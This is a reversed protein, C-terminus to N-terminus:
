AYAIRARAHTSAEALATEARQILYQYDPHRDFEAIGIAVTSQVPTWSGQLNGSQLANRLEESIANALQTARSRDCEVAVMLFRNEDFRFLHDSTRACDVLTNVAVQLLRSRSGTAPLGQFGPLQVEILLLSCPRGSRQHTQMVNALIAPLYRRDPLQTEVDVGDDQSGVRDFLENLKFRILDLLQKIASVAADIKQRDKTTAEVLRPLLVQDMTEVSELLSHLEDSPGFLIAGKNHLWIGFESERLCGPSQPSHPSWFRMLLDEAWESLAARQRAKEFSASRKQAILRYAEDNRVVNQADHFYAQNMLGDALHLLDSVYVLALLRDSPDLPAFDIRRRIGRKLIRIGAPILDIPLRIRAHVVGVEIQRRIAQLPDREVEFLETMWMRMSARLRTQVREQDLFRNARESRTMRDYFEETLTEAGDKVVQSVAQRVNLPTAAMLDQWARVADHEM